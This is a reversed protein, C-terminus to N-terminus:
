QFYLHLALDQYLQYLPLWHEYVTSVHAPASEYLIILYCQNVVCTTELSQFWNTLSKCCWFKCSCKLLKEYNNSSKGIFIIWLWRQIKLFSVTITPNEFWKLDLPFHQLDLVTLERKVFKGDSQAHESDLRVFRIGLSYSVIVRCMSLFNYRGLPQSEQHQNFAACGTPVFIVSLFTIIM